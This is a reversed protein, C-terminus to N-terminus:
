VAHPGADACFLALAHVGIVAHVDAVAFDSRYILLLYALLLLSALLLSTSFIIKIIKFLIYPLLPRLPLTNLHYDSPQLNVGWRLIKKRHMAPFNQSASLEPSFESRRLPFM